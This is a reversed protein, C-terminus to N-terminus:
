LFLEKSYNELIDIIKLKKEFFSVKCFTESLKKEKLYYKRWNRKRISNM